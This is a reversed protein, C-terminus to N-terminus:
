KSLESDAVLVQVYDEESGGSFGPSKNTRYYITLQNVGSVDIDFEKMPSNSKLKEHVLPTGTPEKDQEVKFDDGYVFFDYDGTSGKLKEGAGLKFKLKKYNSGLAYQATERESTDSTGWNWSPESSELVNYYPKGSVDKYGEIPTVSTFHSGKTEPLAGLSIAKNDKYEKGTSANLSFGFDKGGINFIAGNDKGIPYESKIELAFDVPVDKYLQVGQYNSIQSDSSPFDLSTNIVEKLAPRTVSISDKYEM